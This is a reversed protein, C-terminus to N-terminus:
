SEVGIQNHLNYLWDTKFSVNSQLIFPQRIAQFDPLYDSNNFAKDDIAFLKPTHIKRSTKRKLEYVFISLSMENM